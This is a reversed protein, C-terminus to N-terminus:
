LFNNKEKINELLHKQKSRVYKVFQLEPLTLFDCMGPTDNRKMYSSVQDSYEKFELRDDKGPVEEYVCKDYYQKVRNKLIKVELKMRKKGFVAVNKVHKRLFHKYLTMDAKNYDRIKFKVKPKLKIKTRRANKAFAVIDDVSWCLKEKMLILSEDLKEVILVIAFLKDLENIKKHLETTNIGPDAGLDFLM